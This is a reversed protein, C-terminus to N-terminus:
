ATSKLRLLPVKPNYFGTEESNCCTIFCCLRMLRISHMSQTLELCGVAVASLGWTILWIQKSSIFFTETEKVSKFNFLSFKGVSWVLLIDFIDNM